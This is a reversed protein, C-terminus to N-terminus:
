EKNWFNSDKDLYSFSRRMVDDDSEGTRRIRKIIEYVDKSVKIIIKKAM